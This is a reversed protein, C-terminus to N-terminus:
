AAVREFFDLYRAVVAEETFSAEFSARGGAALGRALGDESVARALAAALAAPDDVPVLLGNEEPTILAAPGVSEAAVVPLGHAWAEIVVNGLPEHRSPCVLLDATAYLAAVDERWGLFKLREGLGLRAVQAELAAREAGEGALWCHMEPLLGLAELLLDFGKNRHLRGLALLLPADEPTGLSARPIASAPAADVFNPLYHARGGPWGARTIYALIDPTNAILHDCSRYYKLDYYGGLRAAHVFPGAPCYATARSMWTLTVDPKFEDLTERLQRRTSFDLLGGFALEVPAIGAKQLAAARAEDRRIVIRQELGARALAPVLRLFFAEAGGHPAGAIAQLVRPPSAAM